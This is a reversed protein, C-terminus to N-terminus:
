NYQQFPYGVAGYYYNRPVAQGYTYLPSSLSCSHPTTAGCSCSSQQAPAVRVSSGGSCCQPRSVHCGCPSNPVEVEVPVSVTEEVVKPITKTQYTIEKHCCKPNHSQCGNACPNVYPVQSFTTATGPVWKQYTYKVQRPVMRYTYGTIVPTVSYIMDDEGDFEQMEMGDSEMGMCGGMMGMGM